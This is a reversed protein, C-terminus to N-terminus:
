CVYFYQTINSRGSWYRVDADPSVGKLLLESVFKLLSNPNWYFELAWIDIPARSSRQLKEVALSLSKKLDKECNNQAHNSVNEQNWKEDGRHTENQVEDPNAERRPSPLWIKRAGVCIAHPLAVWLSVLSSLFISRSFFVRSQPRAMRMGRLFLYLFGYSRAPTWLTAYRCGSGWLLRLSKKDCNTSFCDVPVPSNSTISRV